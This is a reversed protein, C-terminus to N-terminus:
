PLASELKALKANADKFRHHEAITIVAEPSAREDKLGELNAQLQHINENMESIETRTCHLDHGNTGAVIQLEGSKVQPM